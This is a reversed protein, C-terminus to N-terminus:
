SQDACRLIIIPRQRDHKQRDWRELNLFIFINLVGKAIRYFLIQLTTLFLTSLIEHQLDGSADGQRASCSCSPSPSTQDKGDQVDQVDDVDWEKGHKVDDDDQEKGDQVHDIIM